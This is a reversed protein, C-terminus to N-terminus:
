ERYFRVASIKITMKNEAFWPDKARATALKEDIDFSEYFLAGATPDDGPTEVIECCELFAQWDLANAPNPFKVSNPDNANFSSFQWPQLITAVLSPTAHPPFRKAAVRNQICWFIGRRAEVSEGRAERWICIAALILPYNEALM